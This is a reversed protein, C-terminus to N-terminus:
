RIGKEGTSHGEAGLRQRSDDALLAQTLTQRPRADRAEMRSTIRSSRRWTREQPGNHLQTLQLVPFFRL